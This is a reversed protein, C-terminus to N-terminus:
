SVAELVVAASTVSLVAAFTDLSPDEPTVRISVSLSTGSSTVTVTATSVRDDKTVELRVRDALSLLEARTVGRNAYSKLAFGYDADDILAGRPTDLRRVLAEAIARTSQPDVEAMREDIDLTCSIDTGYGLPPTPADVQRTVTAMGAALADLIAHTM